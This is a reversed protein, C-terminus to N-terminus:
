EMMWQEFTKHLNTTVDFSAGGFFGESRTEQQEQQASIYGFPLLESLAREKNREYLDEGINSGCYENFYESKVFWSFLVLTMVCDDHCDEDAEYSSGKAIFTGLEEITEQDEIQLYEQELLAKLNSCGVSKVKKNTKVGPIAQSGKGGERLGGISKESNSTMIVNEYELEYYLIYTVQGGVDNNAEVLVPCNGYHMCMNMVTHPFLLPSIDNNRYKAAIKYPYETVDIVTCVSYDQGVGGAPDAIAVYKRPKDSKKVVRIQLNEDEPDPEMVHIHDKPLYVKLYESHEEEPNSWQMNELIEAPILTGTSGVFSNEYEQKFRTYGVNGITQEKWKEDRKPHADWNVKITKYSNQGNEAGRWLMYFLGRAGKPTTTMIVRSNEGSSITPYTSEYFDMDREIFACEDIYVLDCSKGRIGGSGTAASFIKSGNDLEISRRNYIKVGPQIFFPLQEIMLRIRDMIEQAADGKNALVAATKEKHFICYWLIFAAMTTTKGLQRSTLALCFRNDKYLNIMDKQFQYMKFPMLGHDLTIIRCYTEIFYIPDRKCKRLESIHVENLTINAYAKKIQLNGNYCEKYPLIIDNIPFKHKGGDKVPAFVTQKTSTM